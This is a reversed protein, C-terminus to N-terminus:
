RSLWHDSNLSKQNMPNTMVFHMYDCHKMDRPDVSWINYAFTQFCFFAFLKGDTLGLSIFIESESCRPFAFRIVLNWRELIWLSPFTTFNACTLISLIKEFNSNKCFTLDCKRSSWHDSNLSKHNMPNTEIFYMYDCHKWTELISLDSTIQM